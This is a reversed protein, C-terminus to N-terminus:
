GLLHRQFSPAAFHIADQKPVAVLWEYLLGLAADEEVRTRRCIFPPAGMEANAQYPNVFGANVRIKNKEVVRIM